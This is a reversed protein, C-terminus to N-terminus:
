SLKFNIVEVPPAHKPCKKYKTPAAEVHQRHRQLAAARTRVKLRTLRGGDSTRSAGGRAAPNPRAIEGRIDHCKQTSMLLTLRITAIYGDFSTLIFCLLFVTWKNIKLSYSDFM